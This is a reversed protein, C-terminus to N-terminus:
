NWKKLIFEPSAMKAYGQEDRMDDTIEMEVFKGGLSEM